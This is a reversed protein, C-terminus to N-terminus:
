KEVIDLYTDPDVTKGNTRMEFHLHEGQDMEMGGAVAITGIVDGKKVTDGAKLGEKADIYLYTSTMGDKHTITVYNENLLDDRVVKAVTGDLAAYVKDGAKGDFDMGQHVLYRNLTIDHAFEYGCTVNSKDMPLRYKGDDTNTPKDKGDDPDVPEKGDDPDKNPEESQQGDSVPATNRGVTLVVTVTVAAIILLCAALILYYLLVKKKGKKNEM